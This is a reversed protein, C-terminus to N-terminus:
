AAERFAKIMYKVAAKGTEKVEVEIDTYEGVALAIASSAAGSAVVNGNVKIVGASATPTVTVSAVENAVIYTYYYEDGAAAPTLDGSGSMAFFPDTLGDSETITDDPKGNPKMYLTRAMGEEKPVALSM